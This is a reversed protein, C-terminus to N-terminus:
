KEKTADIKHVNFSRSLSNFKNILSLNNTEIILNQIYEFLMEQKKLSEQLELIVIKSDKGNQIDELAGM